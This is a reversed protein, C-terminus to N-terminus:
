SSNLAGALLPNVDQPMCTELTLEAVLGAERLVVGRGFSTPLIKYV